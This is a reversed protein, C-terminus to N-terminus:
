RPAAVLHLEGGRRRARMLGPLDIGKQGHWDTVLRDVARIQDASLEGAPVGSRIAWQRLVRLRVAAPAPELASVTLTADEGQARALLDAALADLADADLRALEATRALAGAVGPGLARELVPLVEQRVRVRAFRTDRNHPDQWVPLGMAECADHTTTRSVALLPRRFGPRDPAMGALSRPGSGRALGLLVTEAQDDLTHGLLVLADLHEAYAALAAYRASRAAGEPGGASGVTVTLVEAPDCGFVRLRDCVDAAIRDSDTQLRHDVVAAGVLWGAARAEFVTAAALAM